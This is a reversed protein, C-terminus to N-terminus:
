DKTRFGLRQVRGTIYRAAHKAVVPIPVKPLTDFVITDTNLGTPITAGTHPCRTLIATMSRCEIALHLSVGPYLPLRSVGTGRGGEVFCLNRLSLGIANRRRCRAPWARSFNWGAM